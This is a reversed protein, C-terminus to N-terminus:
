KILEELEKLNVLNLEKLLKFAATKMRARERNKKDYDYSKTPLLIHPMLTLTENDNSAKLYWRGGCAPRGRGVPPGVTGALRLRLRQQRVSNPNIPRGLKNPRFLQGMPGIPLPTKRIRERQSELYRTYVPSVFPPFKPRKSGAGSRSGRSGKAMNLETDSKNRAAKQRREWTRRSLGDAEWPRTRSLSNAEYEARPIAGADRRRAESRERSASKRHKQRTRDLLKREDSTRYEGSDMPLGKDQRLKRWKRKYERQYDTRNRPKRNQEYKRESEISRM